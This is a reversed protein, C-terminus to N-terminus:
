APLSSIQGQQPQTSNELIMEECASFGTIFAALLQVWEMDTYEDRNYFDHFMDILEATEM